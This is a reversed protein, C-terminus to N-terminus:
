KGFIFIKFIDNQGFIVLLPKKEKNSLRLFKTFKDSTYKLEFLKFSSPTLFIKFPKSFSELSLLISKLQFSIVPM